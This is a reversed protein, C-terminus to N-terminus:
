CGETFDADPETMHMVNCLVRALKTLRRGRDDMKAALMEQKEQHSRGNDLLATLLEQPNTFHEALLRARATSIGPVMSLMNVWIESFQFNEFDADSMDEPKRIPIKPTIHLLELRGSESPYPLGALQKTLDRLYIAVDEVDKMIMVNIQKECLLYIAAEDVCEMSVRKDKRQLALVHSRVDVLVLVLSSDAPCHEELLLRSRLDVIGRDLKDYPSSEDGITAAQSPLLLSLFDTVPYVIVIYPLTTVGDEGIAGRGGEIFPRHSWRCLGPISGEQYTLGFRSEESIENLKETIHMGLETMSFTGTELVLNIEYSKYYGLAQRKLTKEADASQKQINKAELKEQRKREKSLKKDNKIQDKDLQAQDCPTQVFDDMSDCNSLENHIQILPTCVNNVVTSANTHSLDAHRNAIHINEADTSLDVVLM